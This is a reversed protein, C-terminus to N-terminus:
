QQVRPLTDRGDANDLLVRIKENERLPALGPANRIQDAFNPALELGKALMEIAEDMRDQGRAALYAAFDIHSEGNRPELKVAFNFQEEAENHRELAALTRGLMRRGLVWIPAWKVCHSFATQASELDGAEFAQIGTEWARTLRVRQYYGAGMKAAIISLLLAIGIWTSM